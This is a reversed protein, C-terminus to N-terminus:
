QELYPRLERDFRGDAFARRASRRLLPQVVSYFGPVNTDSLEVVVGMQWFKAPGGNKLLNDSALGYVIKVVKEFGSHGPTLTVRFRASAASTNFFRHVTNRPAVAKEGPRLVVVKKNVEISVEGELCEFIEDFTRHYHRDNGGGSDLTVEIITTGDGPEEAFQHFYIQDKISPNEFNRKM